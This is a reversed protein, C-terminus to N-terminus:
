FKAKIEAGFYLPTYLDRYGGIVKQHYLNSRKLFNNAVFSLNIHKGIEKSLKFNLMWTLPYSQKDFYNVNSYRTTLEDPRTVEAPNWTHYELDRDYYGIPNIVLIENGQSNTTTKYVPNGDADKYTYQLSENWVMQLTTSFLMRLQPIHTVFRFNTNFRSRITGSGAPLVALYSDFTSIGNSSISSVVRNSTYSYNQSIRKIWFWAGDVILDTALPKIKGFNFSYEVGHKRTLYVNAPTSYSRVEKQNYSSALKETGDAMTYYLAGDHYSPITTSAQDATPIAYRNYSVGFPVTSYGFENEIREQFYTISGTIGRAQGSLGIEFKKARAAKLNSNATNPVVATTMIAINRPDDSGSYSNYSAFDFYAATPYLSSMTPMKSAIGYGGTLSLDDFRNNNERNLFQYSVNIRPDVVTIDGRLAQNKDIFLRSIRVGPQITLLTKGISYETKDELFLSLTNMSPVSKYSRPRVSQGEGQTPPYNIDYVLGDGKNTSLNYDIGLKINSTGKDFLFMRNAKLQAFATIPEGDLLYHCLYTTPLFTVQMEGPTYSHSYPVVGTGVYKNYIDKQHTYQFSGSYALNSIWSKNLRWTGNTSLRIGLEDDKLYEGQLFSDDSKTDSINRYYTANLNFTLPTSNKFFVNSYGINATLRDYGLYTKRRDSNSKTYDIAFNISGGNNHLRLGKSLSYLKSNADVKALAEWPTVGAKTKIIIAGSTLNGYEVSPIGRIVEISEINDPSVQRLDVGRGSTTQNNMTNTQLSSNNGSRATSFIQMNADNSLPAGNVIVATGLANNADGSSNIERIAAQGANSLDPNKTVAGPLLQLLDEVSKAQLHQIASQGIHSTSGIKDERATVTVEKLALNSPQLKINITLSKHDTVTFTGKQTEYGLYSAEYTYQGSTLHNFTFSGSENTIAWNSSSLKIIALEIPEGTDSDTVKGSVTDGIAAHIALGVFFLLLSLWLKNM